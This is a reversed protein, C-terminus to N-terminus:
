EDIENEQNMAKTEGKEVEIDAGQEEDEQANLCNDFLKEIYIDRYFVQGLILPLTLWGIVLCCISSIQLLKLKEPPAQPLNAEFNKSASLENSVSGLIWVLMCSFLLVKFITVGLGIRRGTQRSPWLHLSVLEAFIGQSISTVSLDELRLCTKFLFITLAPPLLALGLFVPAIGPVEGADWAFAIGLTGIKFLSTLVFVPLVSIAIFIKGLLSAKTLKRDRELENFFSEVGVKGMVLISSMASQLSEQTLTGSVVFITTLLVLQLAAEYRGEAGTARFVLRKTEPGHCFVGLAKVGIIYTASAYSMSCLCLVYAKFVSEPAGKNWDNHFVAAYFLGATLSVEILLTLFNAVDQLKEPIQGACCRATLRTALGQLGSFGLLLGPLAIFTYTLLEVMKPIMKGCPNPTQNGRCVKPVSRAFFFDSGTDYLSFALGFIIAKFFHRTSWHQRWDKVEGWM